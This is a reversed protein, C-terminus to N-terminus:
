RRGCCRKHKKGSGCWCPDNRGIKNFGRRFTRVTRFFREAHGESAMAQQWGLSTLSLRAHFSRFSESHGETPSLENITEVVNKDEHAHLARALALDLAIMAPADTEVMTNPQEGDKVVVLAAALARTSDLSPPTRKVPQTFHGEIRRHRDPDGCVDDIERVASEIATPHLELITELVEAALRDIEVYFSKTDCHFGHRAANRILAKVDDSPEEYAM